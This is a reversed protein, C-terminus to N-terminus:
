LLLPSLLVADALVGRAEESIHTGALDVAALGAASVAVAVYWRSGGWLAAAVAFAVMWLARRRQRPQQVILLNMLILLCLAAAPALLRSTALTNKASVAALFVGTTFLVAASGPKWRQQGLRLAAFLFLYCGVAAGVEFGNRVETFGLWPLAIALDAGIALGLMALVLPRYDRYFRHRPTTLPAAPDRVDILRDALYIAWVTLGLAWRDALRLPSPYCRALFDQWVIAM